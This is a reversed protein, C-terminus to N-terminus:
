DDKGNDNESSESEFNRNFNMWPQIKDIAVIGEYRRGRKRTLPTDEILFRDNDLLKMIRYPGQYKLVLKQSKGDHPVQREVRVLDGEKYITVAKRHKNFNAADRVQQKKILEGTEQRLDELEEAPIRNLTDNIVESLKGETKSMVNFGFLLESPSKRTTKHKTTNIGVQIDAIHDDWSKEDGGHNSTSLADLITRNFREVQGNARPTAVANQIHKIGYSEIFVQFIKSTFSTGKDTILRTPVGFYSIYRKMVELSTSSKTNKVANISVYKTFGDVIVLLYCNGRKSRIFPGLHDAHVTHFPTSVKEIPHLEGERKGGPAKHHACELCSTVYKKVFRRMKPFWYYERIRQLTKEFGWHGLDDHNM